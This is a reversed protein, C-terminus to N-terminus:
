PFECLKWYTNISQMQAFFGHPDVPKLMYGAVHLRYAEVIDREEDSTTLVVVSLDQLAPDRRICQLFEIGNMRPMNIDLLVLLPRQLPQYGDTGRLMALAEVGDNAVALHNCLHLQRMSRRVNMIDVEDDEVLLIHLEKPM